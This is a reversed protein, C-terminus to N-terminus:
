LLYLIITDFHHIVIFVREICWYGSPLTHFVVVMSGGTAVYM